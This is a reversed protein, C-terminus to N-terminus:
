RGSYTGMSRRKIVLVREDGKQQLQIHPSLQHEEITENLYDLIIPAEAISKANSWPKFDFGLTYMDSDSRIGPYKFDWTSSHTSTGRSHHIINPCQAKLHCAASLGSIGAGVIVVSFHEM